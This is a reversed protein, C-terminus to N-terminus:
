VALGTVNKRAKSNENESDAEIRPFKQGVKVRDVCVLIEGM